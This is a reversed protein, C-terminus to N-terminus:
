RCTPVDCSQANLLANPDLMDNSCQYSEEICIYYDGAGECTVNEYLQCQLNLTMIMCDLENIEDELNQCAEAVNNTHSSTSSDSGCAIIFVLGILLHYVKM